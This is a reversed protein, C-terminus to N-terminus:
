GKKIMNGVVFGVVAWLICETFSCGDDTSTNVGAVNGSNNICPTPQMTYQEIWSNAIGEGLGDM